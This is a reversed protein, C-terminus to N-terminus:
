TQIAKAKETRFNKQSEQKVKRPAVLSERAKNQTLATKARVRAVEALDGARDKPRASSM